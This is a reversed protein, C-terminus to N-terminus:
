IKAFLVHKELGVVLYDKTIYLQTLDFKEKMEFSKPYFPFYVAFSYVKKFEPTKTQYDKLKTM